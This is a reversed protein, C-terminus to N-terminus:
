PLVGLLPWFQDFPAMTQEPPAEIGWSILVARAAAPDSTGTYRRLLEFREPTGHKWALAIAPPLDLATYYSENEEGMEDHLSTPWDDECFYRTNSGLGTVTYYYFGPDDDDTALMTLCLSAKEVIDDAGLAQASMMFLAFEQAGQLAYPAVNFPIHQSPYAGLRAVLCGSDMQAQRLHALYVAIWADYQTEGLYKAVAICLGATAHGSNWTTGMGPAGPADLRHANGPGEWYTMRARAAGELSLLRALPDNALWLLAWNENMRRAMLGISYDGFVMPNYIGQPSPYQHWNFPSDAGNLFGDYFDWEPPYDDLRLAQGDQGFQINARCQTRMQEARFLNYGNVDGRSAAWRGGKLPYVDDAHGNPSREGNAPWFKSVPVGGWTPEPLLSALRGQAVAWEQGLGPLSMGPPVPMEGFLLGGRSWDGIGVYEPRHTLGVSFYFPRGRQKPIVHKATVASSPPTVLWPPSCAPDAFAPSWTASTPVILKAERFTRSPGPTAAHWLLEVDFQPADARASIWYEAWGYPGLARHFRATSLVRGRRHWGTFHATETLPYNNGDIQLVLLNPNGMLQFWRDVLSPGTSRGPHLDIRTTGAPVLAAVEWIDHEPLSLFLRADTPRGPVEVPGFGKALPVTGRLVYEHAPPQAYDIHQVAQPTFMLM